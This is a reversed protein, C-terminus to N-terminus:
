FLYKSQNHSIRSSFHINIYVIHVYVTSVYTQRKVLVLHTLRANKEDFINSGKNSEIWICLRPSSKSFQVSTTKAVSVLWRVSVLM